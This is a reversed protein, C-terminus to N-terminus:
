FCKDGACDAPAAAEGCDATAAADTTCHKGTTNCTPIWM